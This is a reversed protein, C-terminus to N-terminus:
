LRGLFTGPEGVADLSFRAQGANESLHGVGEHGASKGPRDTGIQSAERLKKLLSGASGGFISPSRTHNLGYFPPVVACPTFPKSKPRVTWPFRTSSAKSSRTLWEKSVLLHWYM